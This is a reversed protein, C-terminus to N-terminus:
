SQFDDRLPYGQGLSAKTYNRPTRGTIHVSKGYIVSRRTFLLHHGLGYKEANMYGLLQMRLLKSNPKPLTPIM